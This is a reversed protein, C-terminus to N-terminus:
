TSASFVYLIGASPDVVVWGNSRGDPLLDSDFAKLDRFSRESLWWPLVSPPAVYSPYPQIPLLLASWSSLDGPDVRIACYTRSDSPGIFDDGIREEACHADLVHSPPEKGQLLLHLAASIRHDRDGQLEHLTVPVEAGRRCGGSALVAIPLCLILARRGISTLATM